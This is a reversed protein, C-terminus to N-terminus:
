SRKSRKIEKDIIYIPRSKVEDYIRAIYEGIVGIGILQISGIFLIVAMTSAYGDVSHNGFFRDILVIILFITAPITMLLGIYSWIKLPLSSFSFIGDLALKWLKFFNWKTEGSHREPRNYYVHDISYGPWSLLGKMFRTKEKLKQIAQIVDKDILRFDGVNEPIESESIKNIIKYFIGASNRKAIGDEKRSARKALINKKEGFNWKRLMEPILETPDQLDCDIIIAADFESNEIGATIAAEKGFNRSFSIYNLTFSKRPFSLIIEETKDYSGDNVIILNFDYDVLNSLEKELSELFFSIVAEENFAATIIDIKTM